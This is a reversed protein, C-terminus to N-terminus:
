KKTKTKKVKPPRVLKAIEELIVESHSKVIMTCRNSLLPDLNRANSVGVIRKGLLWAAMLECGSDELGGLYNFDAIVLDARALVYFARFEYNDSYATQGAEFIQKVESYPKTLGANKLLTGVSSHPAKTELERSLGEDVVESSPNFLSIPLNLEDLKHKWVPVIQPAYSCYVISM